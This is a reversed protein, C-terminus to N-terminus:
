EHYKCGHVFLLPIANAQRSEQHLYHIKLQEERQGNIDVDVDMLYHPLENLRAEQARWDFGDKWYRVLRRIDALAVGSAWKGLGDPEDPLTASALKSQLQTLRAEDIHIRFHVSTSPSRSTGNTAM